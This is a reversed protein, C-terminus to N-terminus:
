LLIWERWWTPQWCPSWFCHCGQHFFRSTAQSLVCLHWSFLGASERAISKAPFALCFKCICEHTCFNTRALVRLNMSMVSVGKPTKSFNDRSVTSLHGVVDFPFRCMKLICSLKLLYQIATGMGSVLALVMAWSTPVSSRMLYPAGIHIRVSLPPSKSLLSIFCRSFSNLTFSSTVESYLDCFVSWQFLTM